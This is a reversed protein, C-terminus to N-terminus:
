RMSEVHHKTAAAKRRILSLRKSAWNSSKGFKEDIEHAKLGARYLRFVIQQTADLSEQLKVIEFLLSPEFDEQYRASPNYVRPGDPGLTLQGGIGQVEENDDHQENIDPEISMERRRNAQRIADIKINQAIRYVWSSFSSERNFQALNQWVRIMAQQSLENSKAVDGDMLFAHSDCKARLIRRASAEVEVLLAGLSDDSPNQHWAEYLLNLRSPVKATKMLCVLIEVSKESAM